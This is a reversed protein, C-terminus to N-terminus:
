RLAFKRIFVFIGDLGFRGTGVFKIVGFDAGRCYKVFDLFVFDAGSWFNFDFFFFSFDAGNRSVQLFSNRM